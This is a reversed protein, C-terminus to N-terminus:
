AGLAATLRGLDWFGTTTTQDDKGMRVSKAEALLKRADDRSVRSGDLLSLEVLAAAGKQRFLKVYDEHLDDVEKARCRGLLTWALEFRRRRHEQSDPLGVRADLEISVVYLSSPEHKAARRVADLAKAWAKASLASWGEQVARHFEDPQDSSPSSLRVSAPVPVLGKPAKTRRRGDLTKIFREIRETLWQEFTGHKVLSRRRASLATMLHEDQFEVVLPTGHKDVVRADFAFAETSMGHFVWLNELGLREWRAAGAADHLDLCAVDPRLDVLTKPGQEDLFLWGEPADQNPALWTLSGYRALFARYTAPVFSPVKPPRVRKGLWTGTRDRPGSSFESPLRKVAEVLLGREPRKDM